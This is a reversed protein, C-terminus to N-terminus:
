NIRFYIRPFQVRHRSSGSAEGGGGGGAQPQTSFTSCCLVASTEVAAFCHAHGILFAKLSCFFRVATRVSPAFFCFLVPSQQNPHTTKLRQLFFFFSSAAGHELVEVKGTETKYGAVDAPHRTSEFCLSILKKKKKETINWIGQYHKGDTKISTSKIVGYNYCCFHSLLVDKLENECM